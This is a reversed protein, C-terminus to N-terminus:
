MYGHFFSMSKSGGSTTFANSGPELQLWWPTNGFVAGTPAGTIVGTGVNVVAGADSSELYDGSPTHTLRGATTFTVVMDNVPATGDNVANFSTGSVVSTEGHWFPYGMRLTLIASRTIGVDQEIPVFDIPRVLATRVTADPMTRVLSLPSSTSHLAGLLADLNQQIHVLPALTQSGDANFPLIIVGLDINRAKYFRRGTLDEGHTYAYEVGSAKFGPFGDWGGVTTIEYALTRLDLGALVFGTAM